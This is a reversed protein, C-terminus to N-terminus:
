ERERWEHFYRRYRDASRLTSLQIAGIWVAPFRVRCSGNTLYLVVIISDYPVKAFTNTQMSRHLIPLRQISCGHAVLKCDATLAPLCVVQVTAIREGHNQSPHFPVVAVLGQFGM